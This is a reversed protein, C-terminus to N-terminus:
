AGSGGLGLRSFDSRNGRLPRDGLSRLGAMAGPRSYGASLHYNREAGALGLGASSAGVLRGTSVARFDPLVNGHFHDRGRCLIVIGTVLFLVAAALHLFFGAWRGVLFAQAAEIGGALVLLWGFFLMSIVTARVSRVVAAFGLLLLGIGLALFWGWHQIMDPPVRVTLDQIESM